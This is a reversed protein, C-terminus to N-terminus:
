PTLRHSTSIATLKEFFGNGAQITNGKVNTQRTATSVVQPVPLMKIPRAVARTPATAAAHHHSCVSNPQQLEAERFSTKGTTSRSL